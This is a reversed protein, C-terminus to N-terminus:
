ETFDVLLYSENGDFSNNAAIGLSPILLLTVDDDLTEITFTLYDNNEGQLVVTKYYYQTLHGAKNAVIKCYGNTATSDSSIAITVTYTGNKDLKVLNGYQNSSDVEVITNDLSENYVVVNFDFKASTIINKDSGTSTSLWSFTTSTFCIVFILVQLLGFIILIKKKKKDM